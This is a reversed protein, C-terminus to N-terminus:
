VPTQSKPNDGDDLNYSQSDATDTDDRVTLVTGTIFKKNTLYRRIKQLDTDAQSTLAASVAQAITVDVFAGGTIPKNNFANIALLNGGNVFADVRGPGATDAFKLRWDNVLTLTIATKAFGLDDKGAGNMIKEFDLFDLDDEFTRIANYLEQITILLDPADVEILKTEKFFTFSAM